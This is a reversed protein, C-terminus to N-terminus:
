ISQPKSFSGRTRTIWPSPSNTVDHEGIESEPIPIEPEDEEKKEEKM